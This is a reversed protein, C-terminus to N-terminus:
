NRSITRTQNPRKWGRISVLGILGVGILWAPDPIAGTGNFPGLVKEEIFALLSNVTESGAL